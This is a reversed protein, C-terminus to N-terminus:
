KIILLPCKLDRLLYNAMSEHYKGETVALKTQGIAVMDISNKEAYEVITHPAFSSELIVQKIPKNLERIESSIKKLEKEIIRKEQEFKESKTQKRFFTMISQNEVCTLLIIQGDIKKAIDIAARLGREAGLTANYPVLITEFNFQEDM